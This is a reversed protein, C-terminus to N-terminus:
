EDEDEDDTPKKGQQRDKESKLMLTMGCDPCEGPTESRIHDCCGGTCPCVYYDGAVPGGASSASRSGAAAKATAPAAATEKAFDEAWRTQLGKYGFVAAAQKGELATAGERAQAETEFAAIYPKTSGPLKRTAYAYFAKEGDLMVENETGATTYALVDFKVIDFGKAAQDRFLCPLSDYRATEKVGGQKIVAEVRTPSANWPKGDHACTYQAGVGQAIAPLALMLAAALALAGSILNRM